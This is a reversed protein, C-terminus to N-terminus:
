SGLRADTRRCPGPISFFLCLGPGHERRDQPVVDGSILSAGPPSLQDSLPKGKLQRQVHGVPLTDLDSKSLPVQPSPETPCRQKSFGDMGGKVNADTGIKTVGPGLRFMLLGSAM